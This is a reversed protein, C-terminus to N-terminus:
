CCARVMEQESPSTSRLEVGEDVSTVSPIVDGSGKQHQGIVLPHPPSTQYTARIGLGANFSWPQHPLAGRSPHTIYKPKNVASPSVPSQSMHPVQFAGM